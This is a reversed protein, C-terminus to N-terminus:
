ESKLTLKDKRRQVAKLFRAVNQCNIIEPRNESAQEYADLIKVCEELSMFKTRVLIEYNNSIYVYYLRKVRRNIQLKGEIKFILYFIIIVISTVLLSEAVKYFLHM